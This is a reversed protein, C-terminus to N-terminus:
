VANEGRLVSPITLMLIRLDFLLSWRDIYDLDLAVRHRIEEPSHVPGRLGRVQAWGTIGPKVRHRAAYSRVVASFEMERNRAGVVHPRPGVLSMSGEMVNFLQPLEDLSTKRLLRGLRTVRTDGETVPIVAGHDTQAHHLTRFKWVMFPRSAYGERAQRFFVPGPSDLRIALAILGLIPALLMLILAGAILDFGRKMIADLARMPRDFLDLLAVDGLWRYTHPRFVLTTHVPALRIDVPMNWLISLVQGIRAEASPPLTVIVLDFPTRRLFDPMDEIRGLKAVGQQVLPSRTTERDDFLGLVQIGQGRLRALRELTDRAEAGGGAVVLRLGLAGRRILGPVRISLWMRWLTSALAAGLLGAAADMMVDPGAMAHLPGLLLPLGILWVRRGQRLAQKRPGFGGLPQRRDPRTLMAFGAIVVGAALLWAGGELVPLAHKGTWVWVGSFCVALLTVECWFAVRLFMAPTMRLRAPPAFVELGTAIDSRRTQRMGSRDFGMQSLSILGPKVFTSFVSIRFTQLGPETGPNGGEIVM